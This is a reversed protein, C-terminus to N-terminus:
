LFHLFHTFTLISYRHLYRATIYQLQLSSPFRHRPKKAVPFIPVFQTIKSHSRSSREVPPVTSGKSQTAKTLVDVEREASDKDTEKQTQVTPPYEFEAEADSETDADADVVYIDPNAPPRRTKKAKPADDTTAKDEQASKRKKYLAATNSDDCRPGRYPKKLVLRKVNLVV